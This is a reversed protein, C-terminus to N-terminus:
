KSTPTTIRKCRCYSLFSLLDFCSDRWFNNMSTKYRSFSVWYTKSSTPKPLHDSLDGFPCASIVSQGWSRLLVMRHVWFNLYAIRHAEFHEFGKWDLIWCFNTTICLLSGDLNSMQLVCFNCIFPVLWFPALVDLVAMVIGNKGLALEKWM